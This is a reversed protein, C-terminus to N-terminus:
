ARGSGLRGLVIGVISAVAGVVVTALGYAAAAGFRGDGALTVSDVALASYTTFGGLFGTGVALRVLQRRGTDPGGRTLRELVLGLLLAGTINILFIATPGGLRAPLATGILYRSATGSAGGLWVLGLVLPQRHM